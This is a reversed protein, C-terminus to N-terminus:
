GAVRARVEDLTTKNFITGDSYVVQMVDVYGDPFPLDRDVTKFERTLNHRDLTVRGKKSM